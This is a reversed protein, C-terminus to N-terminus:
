TGGTSTLWSPGTVPDPSFGEAKSYQYGYQPKGNAPMGNRVRREHSEKSQEGIRESEFAALEALMGRAFRGSSTTTDM